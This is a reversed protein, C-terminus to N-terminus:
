FGFLRMIARWLSWTKTETVQVVVEQVPETVKCEVVEPGDSTLEVVDEDPEVIYEKVLAIFKKKDVNKGPCDHDTASDEKHLKMTDPNIGLAMSLISIAIASNEKVKAGRGSNFEERNFDGLMEVGISKSNWSPSHVGSTTLQTFVWIQKDDIFLHPGASWHMDDRYYSELGLIHQKTLGNPRSALSPVATNHLVIFDPVFTTFTLNNVYEAFEDPQFSKGVIGKWKPM